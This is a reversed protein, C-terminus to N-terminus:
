RTIPLSKKHIGHTAGSEMEKRVLYIRIHNRECKDCNLIIADTFVYKLLCIKAMQKWKNGNTRGFITFTCCQM